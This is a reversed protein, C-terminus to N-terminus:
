RKSDSIVQDSVTGWQKSRLEARPQISAELRSSHRAGFPTAARRIKHLTDIEERAEMLEQRLREIHQKQEAIVTTDAEKLALRELLDSNESRLATLDCNLLRLQQELEDAYTESQQLHDRLDAMCSPEERLAALERELAECRANSEKVQLELEAEIEKSDLCVQALTQKVRELETQPQCM